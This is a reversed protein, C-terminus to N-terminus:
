DETSGIFEDIRDSTSVTKAKGRVMTEAVYVIQGQKNTYFESRLMRFFGKRFHPRKSAQSVESDIIKESLQITLNRANRGEDRDKTIKPVGDSVCEPFCNMYAITNIALRFANSFILSSRDSKRNLDKYFKDSLYGQYIGRCYFLEISNDNLLSLSFAYGDNEYPIHLGFTYVICNSRNNTKFYIIDKSTGNQYLFQRIGELDSLPTKELFDRLQKDLFFLHLLEGKNDENWLELGSVFLQRTETTEENNLPATIINHRLISFIKEDSLEPTFKKQKAYVEKWYYKLPTSYWIKKAM